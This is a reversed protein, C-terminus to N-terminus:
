LLITLSLYKNSPKDVKGPWYRVVEFKDSNFDMNVKEAWKYITELDGQLQGVDNNQDKIGRM